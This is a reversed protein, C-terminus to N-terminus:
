KDGSRAKKKKQIEAQRVKPLLKKAIKDVVAKKKDLQKEISQRRAFSLEGKPIDKTIKKLLLNRAQKRARKKLTEMDAIKRAAKKRGIAIKAKNKKLSRARALRQQMTLAETAPASEIFQKLGIPRSMIVENTKGM